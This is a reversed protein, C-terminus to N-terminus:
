SKYWTGARLELLVIGVGMSRCMKNIENRWLSNVLMFSFGIKVVMRRSDNGSVKADLTQCLTEIKADIRGSGDM